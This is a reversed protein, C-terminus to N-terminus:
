KNENLSGYIIKYFVTTNKAIMTKHEYILTDLNLDRKM